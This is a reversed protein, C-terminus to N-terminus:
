YVQEATASTNTFGKYHRRHRSIKLMAASAAADFAPGFPPMSCKVEKNFSIVKLDENVRYFKNLM